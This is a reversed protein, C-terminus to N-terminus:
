VIRPAAAASAIRRHGLCARGLPRRPTTIRSQQTVSAPAPSPTVSSRTGNAACNAITAPRASTAQPPSTTALREDPQHLALQPRSQQLM